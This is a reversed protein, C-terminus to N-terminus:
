KAKEHLVIDLDNKGAFTAMHNNDDAKNWSSSELAEIRDLIHGHTVRNDTAVGMIATILTIIAGYELKGFKIISHGNKDKGGNTM